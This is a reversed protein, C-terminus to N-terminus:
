AAAGLKLQSLRLAIPSNLVFWASLESNPKPGVKWQQGGYLNPLSVFDDDFLGKQFTDWAM